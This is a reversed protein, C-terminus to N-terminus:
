ASKSSKIECLVISCCKNDFQRNIMNFLLVRKVVIRIWFCTTCPLQLLWFSLRIASFCTIILLCENWGFEYALLLWEVCNFSISHSHCNILLDSPNIGKACKFLLLSESFCFLRKSHREILIIISRIPETPPKRDQEINNKKKFKTNHKRKIPCRINIRATTFVVVFSFRSRVVCIQWSHFFATHTYM